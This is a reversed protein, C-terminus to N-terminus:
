KPLMRSAHVAVMVPVQFLIYALQSSDTNPNWQAQQDDEIPKNEQDTVANYPQLSISKNLQICQGDALGLDKWSLNNWNVLKHQDIDLGFRPEGPREKLIFFWGTNDTTQTPNLTGRAEEDDLDFGFFYIDPDVKAEFLPTKILDEPPNAEQNATLKILAREAKVSKQGNEEGWDAKHAYIVANPYKKLLEGRIVLVLQTKGSQSARQNHTGLENKRLSNPDSANMRTTNTRSWTHIEPIDKLKEKIDEPIPQQVLYSKVDWFQRFYSGRQDTLYERWLLERSMEHNIGVMYSEIFKQNNELLTISNEEIKNINPLFLDTSLDVLPKYMPLDFEPYAMVPTFTERFNNKIRDPIHITKETRNKITLRPNIKRIIEQNIEKLPLKVLVPENLKFNMLEYSDKLALKFNQAEKSDANGTPKPITEGPEGISFRDNKPYLDVDSPKQEFNITVAPSTEQLDWKRFFIFAALSGLFLLSFLLNIGIAPFILLLALLFLFAYLVYTKIKPYKDKLWLYWEPVPNSAPTIDKPIDNITIGGSPETKDPLVEVEANNVREIINFATAQGTLNLKKMAQGRPRIIQRFTGSTMALPVMSQGVQSKVTLQNQLIRNHLPSSLLFSSNLTLPVFHYNYLQQSISIALQVWKIKNNMEVVKGIQEWAAHMYEEQNKQIVQTGIGAAARYRPDLNLEHIWNKQHPLPLNNRDKLLRQQIAHWRGYLPVTIVPDPDAEGNDLVIRAQQNISEISSSGQLYQDALNIRDAIAISFAHPYPSEDWEEYKQVELKDKPKLTDFPVRLAGGLKLVGKLAPDTIGPLNIGPHLVDMDRYGISKDALKPKLLNVLYEFDGVDGTRFYWRHYYPFEQNASGEWSNKSAITDPPIDLGLGALRGTEFSPILFSHYSTNGELKRPSIIRSYARDPNQKITNKLNTKVEQHNISQSNAGNSLDKNVHVHAWAWLENANPFVDSALVSGKLKFGPLPKDKINKIEVFEDEKLVVLTLWPKLRQGNAAVPSYRWPFDEEYFDIYPLYNPEFNTIWHKPENKIISKSDIGIVDGPGYLFVEKSIKEPTLPNGNVQTGGVLIELPISARLKVSSDGDAKSINRSIGQRLWPLFSYSANIQSM